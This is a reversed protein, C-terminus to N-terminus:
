FYSFLYNETTIKQNVFIQLMYLCFLSKWYLDVQILYKMKKREYDQKLCDLIKLSSLFLCSPFIMDRRENIFRYIM